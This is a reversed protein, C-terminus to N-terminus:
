GPCHCSSCMLCVCLSNSNHMCTLMCPLFESQQLSFHAWFERVHKVRGGGGGGGGGKYLLLM